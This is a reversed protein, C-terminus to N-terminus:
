TTGLCAMFTYPPTYTYRWKNNIEATSPPTHDECGLRMGEGPSLVGTGIPPCFAPHTEATRPTKSFFFDRAEIPIRIEPLGIRLRNVIGGVSDGSQLCPLRM